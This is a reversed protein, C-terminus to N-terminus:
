GEAEIVESEAQAEHKRCSTSLIMNNKIATHVHAAAAIFLTM